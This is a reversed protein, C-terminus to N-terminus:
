RFKTCFDPPALSDLRTECHCIGQPKLDVLNLYTVIVFRSPREAICRLVCYAGKAASPENKQLLLIEECGQPTVDLEAALRDEM